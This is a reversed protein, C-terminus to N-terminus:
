RGAPGAFRATAELAAGIDPWPVGHRAAFARTASTDFRQTQVFHLSEPETRLLQAAGPVQLIAHLVGLPLHHRPPQVALARALRELLGALNPSADDLALLEGGVLAPDFAALRLLEALFDVCVLPLWHAPTGPIARLRGRALNDILGALPQAPLMHGTRSHGCLTAPHVCTLAGALERMRRNVLFHAELKSGEYGGSRRYVGAWDTRAPHETDIGLRRLHTSNHLMFGGVMLLRSGSAAALEAIQRAGHVNVARARDVPLRWAFQAGLHFVVATQGTRRRDSDSLGLGSSALDGALAHLLEGHGGLADVQERLAPLTEPRRLLALVPHGHATLTALLHRGIFGSAGTVLCTPNM